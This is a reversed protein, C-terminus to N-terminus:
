VSDDDEETDVVMLANVHDVLDQTTLVIRGTTSTAADSASRWRVYMYHVNACNVLVAVRSESVHPLQKHLQRLWKDALAERGEGLEKCLVILRLDADKSLASNVIEHEFSSAYMSTNEIEDRVRALAADFAIGNSLSAGGPVLECSGALIPYSERLASMTEQDTAEDALQLLRRLVNIADPDHRLSMVVFYRVDGAGDTESREVVNDDDVLSLADFARRDDAAVQWICRYYCHGDGLVDCVHMGM